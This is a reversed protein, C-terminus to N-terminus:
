LITYGGDIILNQGTIWRSADSLLFVCASSVDTTRGLGLPFGGIRKKYDEDSLQSLYNQMLPTLITGPSICNVRINRKSLEAAMVRAGSVLAGKSASYAATCSRAIVSTISSIFVISASTNMAKVGSAQRVLEFASITNVRMINEYDYPSLLKIPSSKEIGAACILGDLKGNDEVILNVLGKIGDVQSLDYSYMSHDDGELQGLTELLREENRGILVMKAGMKSCDIACQRGIGSSAGTIVITKNSLSFPNFSKEM